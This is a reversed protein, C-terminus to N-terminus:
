KLKLGVVRVLGDPMQKYGELRTTHAIVIRRHYLYLIPEEDIVAKTLKEYIAKRQAQDTILRADDLAKDAEANAWASYNQPADKHLFIYSNGDPDIRGSWALMYAQYEGAEAQKLSTAFETVRIKMDFGTESAMSQIVQAVAETEAGKPVMFDVSVPPTVGAEKLLAKAKAVDRPRIPYDKQYYPHDPNVWQNGPMFEGNFVVQNLAERDISLDLAQRVKASQSLPGKARDKGINLTMGQYGLEIATSLKLRSDARADKIDTALVREILDLGGSKLNALRVTADVIPLFVIRDIFVNDKNWYDQFKEFVIRDQQVREVFKYPGACVPHLGFKDGEAKAAKPSVMMGARDALQSILPAFPAKLVLKVTLPDVVEVHDVSALEPKRFSAPFTMHREISFKAAEADFPEGDHFKVGPRLKITMAKGDASTESSLALQPVINLNEDIDFLKDCFAAFVIRGVYTRALTPDLIDPDEALGIRLTSQAHAGAGLSLLLATAAIALRLIKM